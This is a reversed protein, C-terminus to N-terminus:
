SRRPPVRVLFIFLAATAFCGAGFAIAAQYDGVRDFLHAFLLGGSAMGLGILMAVTGFIAAFARLGFLRLIFYATFDGEAGQGLGVLFVAMAALLWSSSPDLQFFLLAGVVPMLLFVAAVRNPPLRDLAIGAAVRGLGVAIAYVSGVAAASQRSFGVGLLMPQMQSLFGGIALAAAGFAGMCLWFRADGMAATLSVGISDGAPLPMAHRPRERFWLLILPLGVTSILAGLALFGARWGYGAIIEAFAPLALAGIVSISVMTLAFALGASTVFWTAVGKTFVLIGNLTGAVTLFAVMCYLVVINPPCVALLFYGLAVLIVGLIAAQRSGLRDVLMGVFPALFASGILGIPVISVAARSVGFEAQMPLIFLSAVMGFLGVGVGASISGAAVVRWGAAWEQRATQARYEVDM